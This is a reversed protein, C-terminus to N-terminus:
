EKIEWYEASEKDQKEFLRLGVDCFDIQTNTTTTGPLKRCTKCSKIHQSLDQEQVPEHMLKSMENSQMFASISESAKKHYDRTQIVHCDCCVFRGDDIKRVFESSKCNSCRPKREKYGSCAKDSETMLCKFFSCGQAREFFGCSGCMKQEKPPRPIVSYMTIRIAARCGRGFPDDKDHLRYVFVLNWLIDAAEKRTMM